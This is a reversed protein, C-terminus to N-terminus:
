HIAVRASEVSAPEISVKLFFQLVTKLSLPTGESSSCVRWVVIGEFKVSNSVYEAVLTIRLLVLNFGKSPVVLSIGLSSSVIKLVKCCAFLVFCDDFAESAFLITCFPVLFFGTVTTGIKLITSGYM